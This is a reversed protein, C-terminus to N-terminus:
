FLGTTDGVVVALLLRAASRFPCLVCQLWLKYFVGVLAIVYM